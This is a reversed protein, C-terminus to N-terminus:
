MFEKKKFLDRKQLKRSSLLESLKRKMPLLNGITLRKNANEATIASRRKNIMWGMRSFEREPDSSSSKISHVFNACRVLCGPLAQVHKPPVEFTM